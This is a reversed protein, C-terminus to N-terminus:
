LHRGHNKLLAAVEPWRDEMTEKTVNLIVRDEVVCICGSLFTAYTDREQRLRRVESVLALLQPIDLSEVGDYAAAREIRELGETILPENM